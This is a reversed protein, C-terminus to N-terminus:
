SPDPTRRVRRVLLGETAGVAAWRHRRGRQAACGDSRHTPWGVCDGINIHRRAPGSCRRPGEGRAAAKDTLVQRNYRSISLSFKRRRQLAFAPPTPLCWSDGHGMQGCCIRHLVAPRKRGTLFRYGCSAAESPTYQCETYTNRQGQRVRLAARQARRFQLLRLGM